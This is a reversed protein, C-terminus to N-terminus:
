PEPTAAMVPDAGAMEEDSIVGLQRLMGLNDQVIWQEALKGCSVRWIAINERTMPMETATMVGMDDMPGMQTGTAITRAVVKEDDAFIDEITFTIDPFSARLGEVWAVDDEYGDANDFPIGARYRVYDEALIEEIAAMDQGNWVGEYWRRVLEINEEETTTPCDAMADPTAEQALPAAQGAGPLIAIVVFVLIAVFAAGRM